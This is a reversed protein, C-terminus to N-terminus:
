QSLEQEIIEEFVAFPQNGIIERGNIFFTPTGSVGKEGAEKVWQRIRSEYKESDFCQNFDSQNLDLQGAVAKLEDVSGLEFGHEFLYESFEWFKEQEQACLVANTLEFPSLFKPVIKLQGTKVYKDIILPLTDRHFNVCHSCFHSSYEIMTIPADPNGFFFEEELLQSNDSQKQSEKNLISAGQEKGLQGSQFGYWVITTMVALAILGLIITKKNSM